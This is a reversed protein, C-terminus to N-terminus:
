ARLSRVSCWFSAMALGDVGLVGSGTWCTGSSTPISPRCEMRANHLSPCRTHADVVCDVPRSKTLASMWRTATPLAVRPGWEVVM